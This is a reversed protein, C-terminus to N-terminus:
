TGLKKILVYNPDNPDVTERFSIILVDRPQLNIWDTIQFIPIYAVGNHPIVDDNLTLVRKVYRVEWHLVYYSQLQEAFGPPLHFDNVLAAHMRPIM